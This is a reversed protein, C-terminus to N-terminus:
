GPGDLEMLKKIIKQSRESKPLDQLNDKAGLRFQRRIEQMAALCLKISAPTPAVVTEWLAVDRLPSGEECKAAVSAYDVQKPNIQKERLFARIFSGTAVRWDTTPKPRKEVAQEQALRKAEYHKQAMKELAEGDGNRTYRDPHRQRLLASVELWKAETEPFHSYRIFCSTQGSSLGVAKGEERLCVKPGGIIRLFHGGPSNPDILRDGQVGHRPKTRPRYM